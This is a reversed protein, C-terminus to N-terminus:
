LSSCREVARRAQQKKPAQGPMGSARYALLFATRQTATRKLELPAGELGLADALANRSYASVADGRRARCVTMRSLGSAAAVEVLPRADDALARSLATM